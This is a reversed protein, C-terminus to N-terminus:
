FISCRGNECESLVLDETSQLPADGRCGDRFVTIGKCKTEWAMLYAERVDEETAKKSLNITKSVANDVYEQFVAQIKIHWKYSINRSTVFYSENEYKDYKTSLNIKINDMVTKTFKKDFVPEIGSSCGALMSLTGTPAITTLTANRKAKGNKTKYYVPANGKEKGIEKSQAIARTQIYSMVKKALETAEKSNYKIKLKLLMDAWGMVGLGIKRTYLTKHAIKARPYSNVEIVNDLFRVSIDVVKELRSWNIKGNSLVFKELNISGLNCSEYPLLPQEGCPNTCEIKGARPITNKNNITSIFVLGPDGTLWAQHIIQDLLDKANIYEREKTLPNVLPFKTDEIAAKLFSDTASVSINFNQFEKLNEKCKIFNFIEPHNCVLIGMNAGRRVGGQKVVETAQNFVSMFSVVGSAIGRTSNVISGKPRIKNFCLGTGGGTKHIVAVNKVAEFIASMDDEVPLVFCASLQGKPKGANMLTPSNPLFELNDMIELFENHWADRLDKNKEASAVHLAVRDLLGDPTEVVKGDKDKLLYREELIPLSETPFKAM